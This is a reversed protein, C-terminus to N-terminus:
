IAIELKNNLAKIGELGSFKFDDITHEYFNKPECILEMKPQLGTSERNLLERAVELHRDYIHCNQVIHLFKGIRYGIGTKWKLHNCIAMGFEVYQAPNISVTAIYDQSRQILTMDIFEGRVSYLTEFACPQLSKPNDVKQQEQNMNISHRRGYPNEELGKLLNDMLGYRSITHGYTNGLSGVLEGQNNQKVEVIADRWWGQINPHMEEVINTQKIYIAEIDYFAGKLATTRLTNIPFEGKSIDYSFVKQTVFKTHAPTGDSWKPRPEEDLTGSFLIEEITEKLYKDAKIM